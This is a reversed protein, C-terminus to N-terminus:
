TYIYRFEQLERGLIQISPGQRTSSHDIYAAIGRSSFDTVLAESIPLSMDLPVKAYSVRKQSKQSINISQKIM